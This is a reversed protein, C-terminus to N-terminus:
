SGSGCLYEDIGSDWLMRGAADKSVVREACWTGRVVFAAYRFRVLGARRAQASNLRHLRVTMQEGDRLTIEVRRAAPAFVMGIATLAPAPGTGPQAASAILPPETSSLRGPNGACQRYKSRRYNFRGQRWSTGVM